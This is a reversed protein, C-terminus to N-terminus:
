RVEAVLGVRLETSRSGGSIAAYHAGNVGELAIMDVFLSSCGLKYIAEIPSARYNGLVSRRQVELMEFAGADDPAKKHESPRTLLHLEEKDHCGRQGLRQKWSSACQMEACVIRIDSIPVKRVHRSTQHSDTIHM